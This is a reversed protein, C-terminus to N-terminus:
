DNTATTDTFHVEGTNAADPCPLAEGGGGGVTNLEIIKERLTEGGFRLGASADGCWSALSFLLALRLSRM